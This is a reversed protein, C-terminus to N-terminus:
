FKPGSSVIAGGVFAGVFFCVVGIVIIVVAGAM